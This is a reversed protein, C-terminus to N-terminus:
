NDRLIYEDYLTEFKLKHGSEEAAIKKFLTELETGPFRSAMDTYLRQATEERKMAIILVDQYTMNSSPEVNTIYDSIHLDTVTPVKIKEIGRNRINELVVIHGKEMDELEKLMEKQAQFKVEAQLEFYFQVAEKEREIAFDIVENFKDQNM